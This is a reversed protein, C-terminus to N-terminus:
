SRSATPAAARRDTSKLWNRTNEEFRDCWAEAERRHEAPDTAEIGPMAFEPKFHAGRCEDRQLAGKLIAKALPFMDQLAKTFVVNQNTWNGTDSLSCSSPGSQWSASVQRLSRALTDNHRVVTAAKTMVQGLEQHLLYPNEGGGTRKLLAITIAQQHKRRATSCREVAPRRGTRRSDVQALDARRARRDPRQFHLEVAFEGGAPQRRSVPLRMRRHRVPRPHQDAPQAALRHALGGAATREYDVWLGGMSYHVAPFIKMPVERPDVGQFKEYIELIGGLKQDLMARPIHTLDLYVCLRDQEVSLGEYTCVNFIERTAIDRPVLNGYKPYREELFYYREAEPIQKPPARTKRSARCGCAAGKAAPM